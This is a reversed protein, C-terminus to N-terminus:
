RKSATTLSQTTTGYQFYRGDSGLHLRVVSPAAGGATAGFFGQPAMNPPKAAPRPRAQSACEKPIPSAKPLMRINPNNARPTMIAIPKKM